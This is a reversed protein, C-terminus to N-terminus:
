WLTYMLKTFKHQRSTPRLSSSVASATELKISTQCSSSNCDLPNVGIRAPLVLLVMILLRKGLLVPVLIAVLLLALASLVCFLLGRLLSRLNDRERDVEFAATVTTFCCVEAAKDEM